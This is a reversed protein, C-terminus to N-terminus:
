FRRWFAFIPSYNVCGGGRFVTPDKKNIKKPVAEKNGKMQKFAMRCPEFVLELKQVIKISRDM